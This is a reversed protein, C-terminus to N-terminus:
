ELGQFKCLACSIHQSFMWSGMHCARGRGAADRVSVLVTHQFFVIGDRIRAAMDLTILDRRERRAIAGKEVGSFLVGATANAHGGRNARQAIM